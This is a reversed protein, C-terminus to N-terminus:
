GIYDPVEIETWVATETHNTFHRHTGVKDSTLVGAPLQMVTGTNLSDFKVIMGCISKFWMPYKYVESERIPTWHYSNTHPSWNDSKTGKPYLSLDTSVVVEGSILSDFRVIYGYSINKFYLPYEPNSETIENVYALLVKADLERLVKNADLQSIFSYDIGSLEVTLCKDISHIKIQAEDCDIKIPEM